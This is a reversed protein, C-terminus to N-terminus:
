KKALRLFLQELVFRSRHEQSHTGKMALDAELLWRYISGARLRGLQILRTEAKKLTGPPWDKLGAEVLAQSLPVKAGRREHKQYARTAAAYRRLSWSISGFLALPHDGSQLLHDLQMLAEAANGDVAADVADWSTKARWGGVATQVLEGTVEGGKEVYLALKALDQNLMGLNTGVLDLLVEAALPKLVFGHEAKAHVTLWKALKAEDITKNKGAAKLPPGCDIQLGAQDVAKYLRTNAAWTSVDLILVGSARPKAVYDELRSRQASVFADARQVVVVRRGGGGFLSATAIEDHVDRWEPVREDADFSACPADEAPNIQQQIKRVVMQKLFPEDGFVVCVATPPHKEPTSMWDFAHLTTM